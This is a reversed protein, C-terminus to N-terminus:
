QRDAGRNTLRDTERGTLVNFEIWGEIRGGRKGCVLSIYAGISWAFM